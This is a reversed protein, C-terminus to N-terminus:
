LVGCNMADQNEIIAPMDSEQAAFRRVLLIGKTTPSSIPTADSNEVVQGGTAIVFDFKPGDLQQDNVVFFNDSNQQYLSLSWYQPWVEGSVRVPGGSLDYAMSSIISDPNARRASNKRPGFTRNHYCANWDGAAKIIRAEISAMVKKPARDIIVHRTVTYSAAALVLTGLGFIVASRNLM